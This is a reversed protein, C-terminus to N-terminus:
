DSQKREALERFAEPVRGVDSFVVTAYGISERGFRARVADVSRDVSWRGAGAATGARWREDGLRLPLELQLSPQDVLNSLSVALLTIEPEGPHDALAAGALENAMETLTLTASIAVPVTASRTVSRLALFRVRVTVTRAARGAGRLRGAVRDVLYGLTSRVVAPSAQRRGLAAQAGISAAKTVGEIRRHDINAALSGLKGGAAKGVLQELRSGSAGALEGITRIGAAALRARTVPGVGWM